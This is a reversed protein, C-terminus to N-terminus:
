RLKQQVEEPDAEGTLLEPIERFASCFDLAIKEAPINANIGKILETFTQYDRLSTAKRRM